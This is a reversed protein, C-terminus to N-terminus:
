PVDGPPPKPRLWTGRLEWAGLWAGWEALSRVGQEALPGGFLPVLESLHLPGAQLRERVAALELRGAIEALAPSEQPASLLLAGAASLRLTLGQWAILGLEEALELTELPQDVFTRYASLAEDLSAGGRRELWRLALLLEAPGTVVAPTAPARPM